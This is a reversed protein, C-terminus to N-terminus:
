EQERSVARLINSAVSPAVGATARVRQVEVGLLAAATATASSPISGDDLVIVAQPKCAEIVGQAGTLIEAFLLPFSNVRMSPSLQFIRLDGREFPQQVGLEFAIRAVDAGSTGGGLLLWRHELGRVLGQEVATAAQHEDAVLLLSTPGRVSAWSRTRTQFLPWGLQWLCEVQVNHVVEGGRGGGKDRQVGLEGAISGSGGGDHPAEANTLLLSHPDKDGAWSSYYSILVRYHFFM